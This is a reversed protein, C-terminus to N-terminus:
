YKATCLKICLYRQLHQANTWSQVLLNKLITLIQIFDGVAQLPLSLRNFVNNRIRWEFATYIIIITIVFPINQFLIAQFANDSEASNM